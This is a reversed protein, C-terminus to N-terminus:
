VGVDIIANLGEILKDLEEPGMRGIRRGLRQVALTRIQGIKVWSRQPLHASTVELALPFSVRPQEATVAMAIVTDTRANFADQSLIVV